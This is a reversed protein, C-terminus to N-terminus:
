SAPKIKAPVTIGHAAAYDRLDDLTALSTGAPEITHGAQRLLTRIDSAYRCIQEHRIGFLLSATKHPLRHRDHLIAALLKGTLTMRPPPGGPLQRPRYGRRRHLAAERLAAAPQELAATLADLDRATMGTIAPHRLWALDPRPPAPAPPRPVPAPAPLLTYNWEGHWYHAVAPLADMEAKSVTIGLPYAGEDLGARVPLGAATTVAAISNVIIDHSALPRGRWNM